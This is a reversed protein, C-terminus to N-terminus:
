QGSTGAPLGSLKWGQNPVNTLNWQLPVLKTTFVDGYRRQTWRQYPVLWQLALYSQLLVPLRPGRPPM